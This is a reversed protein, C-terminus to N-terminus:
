KSSDTMIGSRPFGELYEPSSNVM